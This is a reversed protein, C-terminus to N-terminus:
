REGDAAKDLEEGLALIAAALAIRRSPSRWPSEYRIDIGHAKLTADAVNLQKEQEAQEPTVFRADISYGGGESQTDRRMRWTAKVLPTDDMREIELWVRAVKTVRAPILNRASGRGYSAPRVFVEDGVKVDMGTKM